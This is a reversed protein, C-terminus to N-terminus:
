ARGRLRGPDRRPPRAPRRHQASPQLRAATPRARAHDRLGRRGVRAAPLAQGLARRWGCRPSRVPSCCRPASPRASCRASRAPPPWSCRLGHRCWRAHVERAARGRAVRQDHHDPERTPERRGRPRAGDRDRHEAGAAKLPPEFLETTASDSDATVRSSDSACGSSCARRRSCRSSGGDARISASRTPSPPGCPDELPGAVARSRGCCSRPSSGSPSRRCSLMALQRPTPAPLEQAALPAGGQPDTM